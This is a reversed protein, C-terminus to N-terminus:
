HVGLSLRKHSEDVTFVRSVRPPSVSVMEIVSLDVCFDRDSDQRPQEHFVKVSRQPTIQSRCSNAFYNEKANRKYM